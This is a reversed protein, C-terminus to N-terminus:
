PLPPGIKIRYFQAPFIMANTDTWRFFNTPPSNTVFLTSWGTLNSSGLVAYDPGVISNTVLMTLQGNSWSVSPVQPLTLPNVTITFNQTASLSPLGNDTVKLTVPNLSNASAVGPRWGFAANTNNIQNFTAGSPAGSLYFVLKQPPSDTDNALAALAVTQGVNVTQNAISALTPATNAALFSASFNDMLSTSLAANNHACVALGIYASANAMPINTVAIQNWTNGDPSWYATFTNNTRTLRVWNPATQGSVTVSYSSGATNTRFLFEIGASPEVDV